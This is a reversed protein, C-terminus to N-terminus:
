EKKGVTAGRIEISGSGTDNISFVTGLESANPGFLAGDSDLKYGNSLNVDLNNNRLEISNFCIRNGNCLSGSPFVIDVVASAPCDRCSLDLFSKKGSLSTVEGTIKSDLGDFEFLINSNGTLGYLANGDNIFIEANGSYSFNGVPITESVDPLGIIGFSGDLSNGEPIITVYSTMNRSPVANAVETNFGPSNNLTISASGNNRVFMGDIKTVQLTTGNVTILELSSTKSSTLDYLSDQEIEHLSSVVGGCGSLQLFIIIIYLKFCRIARGM